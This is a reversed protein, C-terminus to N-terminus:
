LAELKPEMEEVERTTSIDCVNEEMLSTEKSNLSEDTIDVDAIDCINEEMLSNEKSNLSEDTVDVNVTDSVVTETVAATESQQLLESVIRKNERHQARETRQSDVENAAYITPVAGRKLRRNKAF